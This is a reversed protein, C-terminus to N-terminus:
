IELVSERLFLKGPVNHTLPMSSEQPNRILELLLRTAERGVQHLPIEYSSLTPRCSRCIDVVNDFSVISVQDPVKVDLSILKNLLAVATHDDSVIIATPRQDEPLALMKLLSPSMDVPAKSLDMHRQDSPDTFWQVWQENVRGHTRLFEDYGQWRTIFMPHHNAVLFGIRRHGKEWLSQTVSWGAVRNDPTVQHIPLDPMSMGLGIVPIRKAIELVFDPLPGLSKVLLGDVKGDEVCRVYDLGYDMEVIAHYNQGACEHEIGDCYASVMTYRRWQPKCGHFLVGINGTRAGGVRNRGGLIQAASNRRYGLAKIAEQVRQAHDRGVTNNSNIVRSVTGISVGAYDAVQKITVNQTM